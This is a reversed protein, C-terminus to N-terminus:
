FASWVSAATALDTGTEEIREAKNDLLTALNCHAEAHHPDLELCRRFEAEAAAPEQRVQSRLFTRFLALFFVNFVLKLCFFPCFSIPYVNAHAPSEQIL